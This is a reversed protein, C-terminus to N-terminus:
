LIRSVQYAVAGEVLYGQGVCVINNMWAYEEAGTEFLPTTRFYYQAPDIKLRKVPDAMDGRLKPPTVWRGGYTMHVLAGDHMRLALRVDLAMSGDSRFVAWDGGVPEVVGHLKPGAFTGGAAAYLIRQGVPTNGFNLKPHLDVVINFLLESKIEDLSKLRTDLTM